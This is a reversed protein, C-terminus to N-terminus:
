ALAFHTMRDSRNVLKRDAYEEAVFNSVAGVAWETPSSPPEHPNVAPAPALGAGATLGRLPTIGCVGQRTAQWFAEKGIGNSAVVGLGSIVVRRQRNDRM